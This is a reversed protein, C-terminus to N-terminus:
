KSTSRQHGSEEMQTPLASANPRGGAKSGQMGVGPRLIAGVGVGPKAPDSRYLTSLMNRQMSPRRMGVASGRASPRHGARMSGQKYISPGSGYKLYYQHRRAKLLESEEQPLSERKPPRMPTKPTRIMDTARDEIAEVFDKVAPILNLFTGAVSIVFLLWFYKNVHASAYESIHSIKTTGESNQFWPVCAQYLGICIINPLGGICFLNMASFLVKKEPPSATFAVEYAASVAFIEGVGILIYSVAQWLINVREGTQAYTHIIKHEVYLAWAISAAGFASGIAFKYTTPIKIGRDAIWPYLINGIFHGFILVAVADANNMTAADILGFAKHMVTGQVIFTTSMQSYVISFPVILLAIRLIHTITIPDGTNNIAYSPTKKKKGFLAKWGGGSPTSRVYRSSGLVFVSISITLLGVPLFYAITVNRQALVPVLVGGILAGVNICMYFNVYYSEILSSQLLPHFQKAGFVNVASKVIGTGTPWLFLLGFALASQNFEKGLFGPITTLAILLLGPLYFFITGSLITWYDGLVQDALFAGLFPATYAVAVSISVYQLFRLLGNPLLYQTFMDFPYIIM